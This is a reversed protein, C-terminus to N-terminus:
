MEAVAQDLPQIEKDDASYIYDTTYDYLDDGLDFQLTNGAPVEARAQKMLTNCKALSGNAFLAAGKEYDVNAVQGHVDSTFLIRLRATDNGEARATRSVGAGGFLSIIMTLILLWSMSKKKM